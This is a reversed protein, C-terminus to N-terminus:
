APTVTFDCSAPGVYVLHGAPADFTVEPRKVTATRVLDVTAGTTVDRLTLECSASPSTDHFDVVRVDVSGSTEFAESDGNTFAPTFSRTKELSGEGAKFLCGPGSAKIRFNGTQPVQVLAKDYENNASDPWRTDTGEDLNTVKWWCGHNTGEVQNELQLHWPVSTSVKSGSVTFHGDAGDDGPADGRGAVMWVIAALVVVMALSAAITTSRHRAWARHGSRRKGPDGGAGSPGVAPERSLRHQAPQGGRIPGTAAPNRALVISGEAGYLWRQPTQPAGKTRLEDFAYAYADDVSVYGDNDTDAAGSHIGAVLAGTFVSRPLVSGPIPTGEFSYETARSATLVVRGRGQGVFHDGLRLDETGKAGAAFAGSFCCDLIVVQRRARCEELQDLLWDGELGTPALRDKLTDTAAFYLRRRADMLGHCSLYVLALDNPRCDTLFGDVALRIQQADADIVSTVDFGGLAPDALVDRFAAADDAPARLQALSQDAYTEVAILLAVRRGEDPDRPRDTAGADAM